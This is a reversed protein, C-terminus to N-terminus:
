DVKLEEIIEKECGIQSFSIALNKDDWLTQVPMEINFLSSGLIPKQLVVPSGKEIINGKDDKRVFQFLAKGNEDVKDIKLRDHNIVEITLLYSNPRGLLRETWPLKNFLSKSVLRYEFKPKLCEQNKKRVENDFYAGYEYFASGPYSRAMAFQIRFPLLASVLLVFLAWKRLKQCVFNLNFLVIVYFITIAKFYGSYHHMVTQGFCAYLGIIPLFAFNLAWLKEGLFNKRRLYNLVSFLTALYLAVFSLLLKWEYSDGLPHGGRYSGLFMKFWTRLPVLDLIGGSLAAQSASQGFHVKLWSQWAFFIMPVLLYLNIKSFLVRRLNTKKFLFYNQHAWILLPIVLYIERSLASFLIAVVSLAIRNRFFMILGVILMADAFADPLGRSLTLQTGVGIGWLLSWYPSIGAKALHDALLVLALLIFLFNTLYFLWPPVWDLILIRSFMFAVLPMGIRQYRYAPADINKSTALQDLPDNSIYFYFQGDWGTNQMGQTHPSIGKELLYPPVGFLASTLMYHNFVGRLEGSVYFFQTLFSTGIFLCSILVMHYRKYKAQQSSKTTVEM